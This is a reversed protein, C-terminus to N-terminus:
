FDWIEFRLDNQSLAFSWLPCIHLWLNTMHILTTWMMLSSASFICISALLTISNKHPHCFAKLICYYKQNRSFITTAQRLLAFSDAKLWSLFACTTVAPYAIISQLLSQIHLQWSHCFSSGCISWSRLIERWLLSLVLVAWLHKM